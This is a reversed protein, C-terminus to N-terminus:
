YDLINLVTKWTFGARVSKQNVTNVLGGRKVSVAAMVMWVMMVNAMAPATVHQSFFFTLVFYLLVVVM